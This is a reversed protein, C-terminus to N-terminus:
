FLVKYLTLGSLFIILAGILVMLIEPKILRLVYAGFPAAVVGGVLLGLLVNQFGDMLEETMTVSLTVAILTKVFFEATNVSGIVHRPDEDRVILNSTVMPGWGGGLADLFGGVLGLGARFPTEDRVETSLIKKHKFRKWLILGGLFALYIAIWPKIFDGDIKTLLLAGLMGGLSGAVALTLFLKRDVNKFWSHSIASLGTTFFQASHVSASVVVPAVGSSILVATSLTGYAMGLAGDVMQALFGVLAYTWFESSHLIELM